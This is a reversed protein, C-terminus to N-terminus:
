KTNHLIIQELSAAIGRTQSRVRVFGSCGQQTKQVSLNVLAFEGFKSKSAMNATLFGCSEVIQDSINSVIEMNLNKAIQSVFDRLSNTSQVPDKIEWGLAQWKARFTADDLACPQLYDMIDVHIENLVVCVPQNQVEYFLGGFITGTETSTIKLSSILHQSSHAPLNTVAPKDNLKLDGMTVLDLNLNQLTDSTQNVVLMDLTIDYQNVIVTVEAYLSDSLGTLQHVRHRDKKKGNQAFASLDTSQSFLDDIQDAGLHFTIADDIQEIKKESKKQRQFSHPKREVNATLVERVLAMEPSQVLLTNLALVMADYSDPDEKSPMARLM